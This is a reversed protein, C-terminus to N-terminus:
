TNIWERKQSGCVMIYLTLKKTKRTTNTSETSEKGLSITKRKATAKEKIVFAENTITSTNPRFSIISNLIGFVRECM